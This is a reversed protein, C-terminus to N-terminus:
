RAASRQPSPIEPRAPSTGAAYIVPDAALAVGAPPRLTAVAILSLLLIRRATNSTTPAMPWPKEAAPGNGPM